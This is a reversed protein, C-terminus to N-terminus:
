IASDMEGGHDYNQPVAAQPDNWCASILRITEANFGRQKLGSRFRPLHGKWDRITFTGDKGLAPWEPMPEKNRASDGAATTNNGQAPRIIGIIMMAEGMPIGLSELSQVTLMELAATYCLSNAKFADEHKSARVAQPLQLFLAALVGYIAAADTGDAKCLNRHLPPM